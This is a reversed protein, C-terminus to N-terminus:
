SDPQHNNIRRRILTSFREQLMNGSHVFEEAYNQCTVKVNKISGPYELPKERHTL